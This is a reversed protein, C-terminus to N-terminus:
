KLPGPYTDDADELRARRRNYARDERHWKQLFRVMQVLVWVFTIWAVPGLNTLAYLFTGLAGPLTKMIFDQLAEPLHEHLRM